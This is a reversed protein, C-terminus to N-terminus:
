RGRIFPLTLTPPDPTGEEAAPTTPDSSAIAVPPEGRV